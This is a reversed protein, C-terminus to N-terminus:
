KIQMILVEVHINGQFMKEPIDYLMYHYERIETETLTKKRIGVVKQVVASFTHEWSIELGLSEQIDITAQPGSLFTLSWQVM